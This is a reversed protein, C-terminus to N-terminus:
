GVGTLGRSIWLGRRWCTKMAGEKMEAATRTGSHSRIELRRLVYPELGEDREAATVRYLHVPPLDEHPQTGLTDEVQAAVADNWIGIELACLYSLAVVGNRQHGGLGEM